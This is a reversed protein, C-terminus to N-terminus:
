APPGHRQRRPAPRGRPDVLGRAHQGLMAGVKMAMYLGDGTNTPMSVPHTLPGRLFARKYEENWEFGGRRSSSARGPECPGSARRRRSAYASSAATRGSWSTAGPLGGAAGRRGDLCARLLRGVLAQGSGREDTDVADPSRRAPPDAHAHGCRAADREHDPAPRPLVPQPHGRDSGPASSASPSCRASSAHPRRRAERGPARSPLRPLERVAAFETGADADLLRVMEPGADLYAGVLREELLGRSLSMIYRMAEERSDTVGIGEQHPNCPIWM